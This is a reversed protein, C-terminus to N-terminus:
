NMRKLGIRKREKDISMVEVEVHDHLAIFDAPNEVYGEHLHSKYILGNEKIGINVFAGFNTVNTVVGPLKMGLELDGMTRIKQSFNLTQIRKRPDRGPKKLELLVDRETFSLEQNQLLQDIFEENGSLESKNMKHHAAM